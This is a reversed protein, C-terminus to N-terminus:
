PERKTIHRLRMLIMAHKSAINKYPHFDVTYSYNKLFGDEFLVTYAAALPRALGKIHKPLAALANQYVPKPELVAMVKQMFQNRVTQCFTFCLQADPMLNPVLQSEIWTWDRRTLNGFLDIFAFDTPLM